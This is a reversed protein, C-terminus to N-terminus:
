STLILTQPQAWFDSYQDCIIFSGQLHLNGHVKM